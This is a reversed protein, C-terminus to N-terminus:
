ICYIPYVYYIMYIYIYIHYTMPICSMFNGHQFTFTVKVCPPRRCCNVVMSEPFALTGQRPCNVTGHEDMKMFQCSLIGYSM